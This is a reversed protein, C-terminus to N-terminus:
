SKSKSKVQIDDRKNLYYKVDQLRISNGKKVAVKYVGYATGFFDGYVKKDDKKDGM